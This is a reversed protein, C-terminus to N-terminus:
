SHNQHATPKEDGPPASCIERIRDLRIETRGGASELVLYEAGDHVVLDVARGVAEGDSLTLRVPRRHMALLELESHFGCAIPRYDDNGSM